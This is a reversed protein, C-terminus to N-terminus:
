CVNLDLSKQLRCKEFKRDRCLRMGAEGNRQAPEQAPVAEVRLLLLLPLHLRHPDVVRGHDCGIQRPVDDRAQVNSHCFVKVMQNVLLHRQLRLVTM